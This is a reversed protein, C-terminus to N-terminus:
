ASWFTMKLAPFATQCGFEHFGIMDRVENRRLEAGLSTLAVGDRGYSLLYLEVGRVVRGM